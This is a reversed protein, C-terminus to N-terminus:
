GHASENAAARLRLHRAALDMESGRMIAKQSDFHSLALSSGAKGM